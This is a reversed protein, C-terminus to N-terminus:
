RARPVFAVPRIPSGSGNKIKLPLGVFFFRAPLRDLNMLCEIILIRNPLCYVDHAYSKAGVGDKLAQDCAITDSGIAKIGREYLMRVAAEDLGPANGAYYKGEGGTKWYKQWGFNLIAIDGRGARENMGEELRLLDRDTALDGAGLGLDCLRYVVAEGILRAPDVTDITVDMMDRHIHAPADVHAGTHEAMSVSQCYYGDKEHFVTPDIVLHPHHHWVPIGKELLPALDVIEFSGILAALDGASVVKPTEM